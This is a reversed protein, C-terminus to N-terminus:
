DSAAIIAALHQSFQALLHSYAEAQGTYGAEAPTRYESVDGALQQGSAQDVLRWDARLVAEGKANIDLVLVRGRIVKEPQEDRRWPFVKISQGVLRSLNEQVVRLVGDDVPEAWREFDSYELRYGGQTKLLQPRHLYEAVTMPGLGIDVGQDNVKKTVVSLSQLVYYNTPTSSACAQILLVSVLVFWKKGIM